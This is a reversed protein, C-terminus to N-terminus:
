LARQFILLDETTLKENKKLKENVEEKKAKMEQEQKKKQMEKLVVNNESLFVVLENKKALIEKLEENKVKFEEKAEIFKKYHESEIKRLDMIEQSNSIFDESLNHKHSAGNKLKSVTGSKLGKLEAIQKEKDEIVKWIKNVDAMQAYSKKLKKLELNLRKEQDFGIASTELAYELKEIKKKIFSPNDTIGYKSCLSNYEQKLKKIDTVLKGIKDSVQFKEEKLTKVEKSLSTVKSKSSRLENIKASIQASVEKKKKFCGEKISNLRNLEQKKLKLQSKLEEVEILIKKIESQELM